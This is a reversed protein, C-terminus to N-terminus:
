LILPPIGRSRRYAEMDHHEFCLSLKVTKREEEEAEKKTRIM